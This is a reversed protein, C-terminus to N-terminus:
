CDNKVACDQRNSAPGCCCCGDDNLVTLRLPWPLKVHVTNQMKTTLTLSKCSVNCMAQALHIEEARLDHVDSLLCAQPAFKPAITERHAQLATKVNELTTYPDAYLYAKGLLMTADAVLYVAM